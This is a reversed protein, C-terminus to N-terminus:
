PIAGNNNSNNILELAKEWDYGYNMLFDIISVNHEFGEWLQKYKFPKFDSYILQVGRSSFNERNQYARAGNGSFYVQGNLTKVLDIVKEEKKSNIHFESALFFKVKINLKETVHKIFEINFKHLYKTKAAYCKELDPFIQDFYEAKQYALKIHRLHDNRWKLQDKLIIQNINEPHSYDVPIKLRKLGVHTKINRYNHGGSKSFQIDDHFIFIDSKHIKYFFGIWPIYNPQHIGIWTM